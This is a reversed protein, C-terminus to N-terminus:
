EQVDDNNLMDLPRGGINDFNVSEEMFETQYFPTQKALAEVVLVQLRSVEKAFKYTRQLKSKYDQNLDVRMAGALTILFEHHMYMPEPVGALMFERLIEQSDRNIFKTSLCDKLTVHSSLFEKPKSALKYDLNIIVQQGFEMAEKVGYLMHHKTPKDVLSELSYLQYDAKKQDLSKLMTELDGEFDVSRLLLVTRRLKM